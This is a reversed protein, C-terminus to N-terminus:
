LWRPRFQSLRPLFSKDLAKLIEGLSACRSDQVQRRKKWMRPIGCLADWKAKLIVAGQGQLSFRITTVLNLAIHLPLLLWFLAGPMNKVYTWVLNRHGHYVAFDGRQGGTSASGVHYAVADPVYLCRYGLLRLRFGLDVDEVYCFYDEDFGNVELMASRRYLAAAACPSFIEKMKLTSADAANGHGERWVLGSIHYIDGTGDYNSPENANMLRSGFFAYEPHHKVADMLSELWTPEPFADPNLLALWECEESVLRVAHNNAAAFGINKDLRVVKVHPYCEELGVASSDTSANDVIIVECPPMIQKSLSLICRKLYTGTNWNVIIVSVQARDFSTKHPM